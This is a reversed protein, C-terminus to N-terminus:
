TPGGVTNLYTPARVAGATGPQGSGLWQLGLVLLTAALAIVLIAVALLEERLLRRRHHLRRLRAGPGDDDAHSASGVTTIAVPTAPRVTKM